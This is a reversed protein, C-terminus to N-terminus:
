SLKIDYKPWKKGSVRQEQTNFYKTVSKAGRELKSSTEQLM